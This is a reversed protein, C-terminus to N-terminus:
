APPSQGSAAVIVAQQAEAAHPENDQVQARLRQAAATAIAELEPSLSEVDPETAM